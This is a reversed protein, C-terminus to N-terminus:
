SWDGMQQFYIAIVSWNNLASDAMNGDHITEFSDLVAQCTYTRAGGPVRLRLTAQKGQRSAVTQVANDLALGNGPGSGVVIVDLRQEIPYRRGSQKTSDVNVAVGGFTTILRASQASKLRCLQPRFTATNLSVNDFADIYGYAFGTAM